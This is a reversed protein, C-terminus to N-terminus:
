ARELQASSRNVVFSVFSVFSLLALANPFQLAFGDNAPAFPPPVDPCSTQGGHWLSRLGESKSSSEKTDKTDKTTL